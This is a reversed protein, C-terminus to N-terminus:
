AELVLFFVDMLLPVGCASFLSSNVYRGCNVFVWLVLNSLHEHTGPLARSPNFIFLSSFLRPLSCVCHTLLCGGSQLAPPMSVTFKELAYLQM